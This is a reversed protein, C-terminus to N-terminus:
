GECSCASREPNAWMVHLLDRPRRDAARCFDKQLKKGVIRNKNEAIEYGAAFPAPSDSATM